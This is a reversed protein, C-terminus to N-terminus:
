LFLQGTSTLGISNGKRYFLPQGLEQELMKIQRSVTPQTTFAQKATETFSLTQALTLFYRM